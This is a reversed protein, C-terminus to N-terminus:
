EMRATNSAIDRKVENMNNELAEVINATKCLRRDIGDLKSGFGSFEAGLTKLETLVAAISAQDMSAQQENEITPENKQKQSGKAHKFIDNEKNSATKSMTVASSTFTVRPNINFEATHRM